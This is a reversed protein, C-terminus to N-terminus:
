PVPPQHSPWSALGPTSMPPGGTEVVELAVSHLKRHERQSFVRLLDFAQDRTVKYSAMLIGIAVGIDRNTDLARELHAARRRSGVAAIAVGAHTALLHGLEVDAEPFGHAQTSYVNLGCSSRARDDLQLRHSLMSRVGFDAAVRRLSEPWRADVTTDDVVFVTHNVVADVCPGSNLAYQLNDAARAREDTASSTSFREGEFVTISAWDAHTLLEVTVETVAATVGAASHGAIQRGITHFSRALARLREAPVSDRVPPDAM